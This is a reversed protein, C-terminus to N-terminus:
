VGKKNLSFSYSRFFYFVYILSYNLAYVFLVLKIDYYKILSFIILNSLLMYIHGWLDENQKEVIYYSYSLPSVIFKMFFMIALIRAFVGAEYWQEGFILSFLSPAFIVLLVFPIISMLFLARFTQLFTSNFNGTERYDQSAKQKYVEAIAGAIFIIPVGLIRLSMNYYGIVDKTMYAALILVPMQSVFVSILDSPLSYIPFKKYKKILEFANGSVKFINIFTFENMMLLFSFAVVQGMILGLVLGEFSPDFFVYWLVSTFVNLFATIIRSLSLMKFKSNRNFWVTLFDNCGLLFNYLPLFYLYNGLVEANFYRLLLGKIFFILALLVLSSAVSISFCINGILLADRREGAIQIANSYRLTPFVSFLLVISNFLGLIGFHEPTYLRTLLPSSILLILQSIVSGTLVTFFNKAFASKLVDGKFKLKGYIFNM